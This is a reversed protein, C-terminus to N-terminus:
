MSGNSFSSRMLYRWSPTRNVAMDGGLFAVAAMVDRMLIMDDSFMASFRRGWSPRMLILTAFRM